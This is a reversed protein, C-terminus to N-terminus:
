TLLPAKTDTLYNFLEEFEIRLVTTLEESVGTVRAQELLDTVYSPDWLPNAAIQSSNVVAHRYIEASAPHAVARGFWYRANNFDDEVRHIMGHIYAADPGSIAQVIEHAVNLDGAAYWLLARVCAAKARDRLGLDDDTVGELRALLRPNPAPMERSLRPLQAEALLARLDTPM